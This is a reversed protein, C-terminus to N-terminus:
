PGLRRALEDLLQRDTLRAVPDEEQNPLHKLEPHGATLVVAGDRFEPGMAKGQLHLLWVENSSTQVLQLIVEADPDVGEFLAQIHRARYLYTGHKDQQSM